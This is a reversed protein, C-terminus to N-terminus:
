ECLKQNIPTYAKKLKAKLLDKDEQTFKGGERENIMRKARSVFKEMKRTNCSASIEKTLVSLKDLKVNLKKFSSSDILDEIEDCLRELKTCTKAHINTKPCSSSTSSNVACGNVAVLSLVGAILLLKVNKMHRFLFIIEPIF